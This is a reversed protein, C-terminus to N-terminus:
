KEKSEEELNTKFKNVIEKLEPTLLSTIKNTWSQVTGSKMIFNTFNEQFLWVLIDLMDGEHLDFHAELDAIEEKGLMLSGMLKQSLDDFHEPTVHESLMSLMAGFTHSQTDDFEEKNSKAQLSDIGVGASPSLASLIKFGETAVTFAGVKYAQYIREEGDSDKISKTIVKKAYRMVIEGRSFLFSATALAM